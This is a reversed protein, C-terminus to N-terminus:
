FLEHHTTHQNGSDSIVIMTKWCFYATMGLLVQTVINSGIMPATFVCAAIMLGTLCFCVLKFALRDGMIDRLFQFPHFISFNLRGEPPPLFPNSNPDSRGLGAPLQSAMAKPVLEISLQIKGQNGEFNPHRLNNIWFRDPIKESKKWVKVHENHKVAMKCLGKLPLVAECISDNASLLDLDWIQFRFRPWQSMTHTLPIEWKMRWNFNGKGKKSRFHTDTEQKKTGKTSLAGTVYLDNMDTLTDKITVNRVSWVIVRLEFMLPPPPTIDLMPSSKAVQPDLLELWMSLKGQSAKSVKSWLTRQEVPKLKIDRWARSFWRNEIDIVTTGILDDGIGDWDWCEVTISADGPITCPIEFGEFFQPELTHKKYRKRTSIKTDGLRIKLYPDSFGDDDKPNVTGNLVYLRCYLSTPNLLEKSDFMEPADKSEILRILGKFTGVQRRKSFRTDQGYFCPITHFPRLLMQDELEDPCTWRGKMYEEPDPEEKDDKSEADPDYKRPGSHGEGEFEGPMAVPLDTSDLEGVGHGTDQPTEQATDKIELEVDDSSAPAGDRSLLRQGEDVAAKKEEPVPHITVVSAEAEAESKAEGLKRQKRQEEKIIAMEIEGLSKQERQKLELDSIYREGQASAQKLEVKGEAPKSSGKGDDVLFQQMELSGSGIMRKTLGGFLVDRIEIDLIPAFISDEPIEVPIVLKQLFNPNKASPLRSEKTHFRKGNPLEFDLFTKHVGMTSQLDRLGLTTIELFITRCPPRISEPVAGLDKQQNGTLLQFSALVQTQPLAKGEFDTCRYWKPRPPERSGAALSQATTRLVERMDVVFRAIPDDASFQDWDFVFCQLSPSLLLPQPLQVQLVKVEYWQPSLTKRKKTTVAKQGALRLVIFPDALGNDDTPTLNRALYIFCRLQFDNRDPQGLETSTKKLQLSLKKSGLLNWKTAKKQAVERELLAQKAKDSPAPTYKFGLQCQASPYKTSINFWKEATFSTGFEAKAHRSMKRVTTEWTGMLDDSFTDQDAMKFKVPDDVNVENFTFSQNWQPELTKKIVKTKNTVKGVTVKVYPDSTKGSDMAPLRTGSIVTVVLTGVTSVESDSRRPNPQRKTEPLSVPEAELLPSDAAGDLSAKRDAEISGKKMPVKGEADPEYGPRPTGCEGCQSVNADNMTSCAAGGPLVAVCVWPSLEDIRKEIADFDADEYKLPRVLAWRPDQEGPATDAAGGRLSMLVTGPFESETLADLCPDEALIRWMPPSIWQQDCLDALRFRSFSVRRKKSSTSSSNVLYVFVDPAQTPDEPLQPLSLSLPTFWEVRGQQSTIFSSSVSIDGCSVEIGMKGPSPIESGEYLDCDVKYNINKPWLDKSPVQCDKVVEAMPDEKEEVKYDMLLKGRYLTGTVFGDNMKKAVDKKKKAGLPSGYLNYWKPGKLTDHKKVEHYDLFVTAILEDRIDDRDWLQVKISSSMVPEMVPVQIMTNYEPIKLGRVKKKKDQKRTSLKVGAYEVVLYPDTSGGKSLINPDMIPIEMIQYVALSLLYGKTEVEPPMMVAMMGGEEDDADAASHIYQEDGPGLVTISLKLYGQIGERKDTTDTLCCWQRYLEHNKRSYITSVDFEFKGILVDKRITNADMIAVSIKAAEIEMPEKKKFEFVLVEDFFPSLTKKHIKTNDKTGMVEVKAVPDSTAGADLGKLDRCEIIHVHITYDGAKLRKPKEQKAETPKSEKDSAPATVPLLSGKEKNEESDPSKADAM